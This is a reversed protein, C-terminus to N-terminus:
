WRLERGGEPTGYLASVDGLRYLLGEYRDNWSENSGRDGGLRLLILNCIVHAVKMRLLSAPGVPSGYISAELQGFLLEAAAKSPLVPPTPYPAIPSNAPGRIRLGQLKLDVLSARFAYYDDQRVAGWYALSEDRLHRDEPWRDLDLDPATSGCSLRRIPRGELPAGLGATGGSSCTRPLVCEGTVGGIRKGWLNRVLENRWTIAPISQLLATLSLVRDTGPPRVVPRLAADLRDLCARFEAVDGESQEKSGPPYRKKLRHVLVSMRQILSWIDGGGAPTRPTGRPAQVLDDFGPVAQSRGDLFLEAHAPISSVLLLSVVFSCTRHFLM